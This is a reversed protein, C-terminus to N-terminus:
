KLYLYSYLSNGKVNGHIIVGIPKDGRIKNMRNEGYFM